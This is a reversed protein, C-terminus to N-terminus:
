SIIIDQRLRIGSYILKKAPDLTFAEPALWEGVFLHEANVLKNNPELTPLEPYHRVGPEIVALQEVLTYFSVAALVVVISVVVLRAM